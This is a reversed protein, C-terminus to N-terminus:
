NTDIKRLVELVGDKEDLRFRKISISDVAQNSAGRVVHIARLHWCPMRDGYTMFDGTYILVDSHAVRSGAHKGHIDGICVIKLEAM